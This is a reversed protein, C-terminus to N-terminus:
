DAALSWVASAAREAKVVPWAIAPSKQAQPEMGNLDTLSLWFPLVIECPRTGLFEERSGTAHSVM